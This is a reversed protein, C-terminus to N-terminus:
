LTTTVDRLGRSRADAGPVTNRHKISNNFRMNVITDAVTYFEDLIATKTAKNVGQYRKRIAKLYERRAGKGM